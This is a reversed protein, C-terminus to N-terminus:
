TTIVCHFAVVEARLMMARKALRTMELPWEVYHAVGSRNLIDFHM